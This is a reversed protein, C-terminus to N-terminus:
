IRESCHSCGNHFLVFSFLEEDILRPLLFFVFGTDDNALLSSKRIAKAYIIRNIEETRKKGAKANKSRKANKNEDHRGNKKKIIITAEDLIIKGQPHTM